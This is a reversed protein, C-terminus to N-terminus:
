QSGARDEDYRGLRAASETWGGRGAPNVQSQCSGSQLTLMFESATHMGSVLEVLEEPLPPELNELMYASYATIIGLPNRLDHAAVGLLENKLRNLQELEVNKRVLERQLNVLENNLRTLDELHADSRYQLYNAALEFKQKAVQRLVVSQESVIRAMEELHRDQADTGPVAGVYLADDYRIGSLLLPQHGERSETALEWRATSEHTRVAELFHLAKEIMSAPFLRVLSEGPKMAAFVAAPDTIISEVVGDLDCRAVSVTLNDEM